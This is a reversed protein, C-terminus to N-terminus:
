KDHKNHLVKYLIIIFLIMDYRKWAVLPTM